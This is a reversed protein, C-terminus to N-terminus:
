AGQRQRVWRRLEVAIRAAVAGWEGRQRQRFLRLSPYWPSDDRHQLWRWDPLYSLMVWAPRGLAGALHVPSSDVSILLDAVSLIAATDEFDTIERDLAVLNLGPPPAAAQAAAPGKQVALYTIGDHALPALTELTISRAADNLHTPRGAWVLGVLPRPLPALRQRWHSLRAPDVGLYPIEVAPLQELTLGLVLPLSMMECFSDFPPPVEGRLVVQDIYPLRRAFSAQAADIQLVLRRPQARERALRVLRLFQFTDGYGQEDYILLTQQPMPRGDWRPVQVKRGLAETHPMQYRYHYERWGREFDGLLLLTEALEFRIQFNGPLREALMQQIRGADEVRGQNRLIAALLMWANVPGPGQALARELVRGAQELRGQTVLLRAEAELAAFPQGPAGTTPTQSM